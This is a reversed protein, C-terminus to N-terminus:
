EVKRRNHGHWSVGETAHRNAFRLTHTYKQGRGNMLRENEWLRETHLCGSPFVPTAAAPSVVEYLAGQARSYSAATYTTAGHTLRSQM